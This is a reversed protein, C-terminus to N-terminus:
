GDLVGSGFISSSVSYLHRAIAAREPRMRLTRIAQQARATAPQQVYKRYHRTCGFTAACMQSYTQHACGMMARRGYRTDRGSNSEAAARQASGRYCCMGPIHRSMQAELGGCVVTDFMRANCRRSRDPYGQLVRCASGYLQQTPMGCLVDLIRAVTALPRDYGYMYEIRGAMRPARGERAESRHTNAAFTRPMRDTTEAAGTARSSCISNECTHQSM